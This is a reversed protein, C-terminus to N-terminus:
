IICKRNQLNGVERSIGIYMIYIINNHIGDRLNSETRRINRKNRYVWGVTSYVFDNDSPISIGKPDGAQLYPAFKRLSNATGFVFSKMLRTFDLHNDGKTPHHGAPAPNAGSTRTNSRRTHLLFVPGPSVINRMKGSVSGCVGVASVWLVGANTPYSRFNSWFM